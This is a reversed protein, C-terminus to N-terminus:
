ELYKKMGIASTRLNEIPLHRCELFELATEKTMSMSYRMNPCKLHKMTPVEEFVRISLGAEIQDSNM